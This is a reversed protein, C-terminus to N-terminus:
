VVHEKWKPKSGAKVTLVGFTASSDDFGGSRGMMFAPVERKGVAWTWPDGGNDHIHGCVIADLELSDIARKLRRFDPPNFGVSFDDNLLKGIDILDGKVPPHHIALLKAQGKRVEVDELLAGQDAPWFGNGSNVTNRSTTDASLLMVDGLDKALPFADDEDLADEDGSLDSVWESFEDYNEQGAVTAINAWEILRAPISGRHPTHFIDHNGVVVTLRDRHWLGLKRLYKELRDRDRQMATACDFTDGALVVHDVNAATAAKFV